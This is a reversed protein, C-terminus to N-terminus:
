TAPPAFMHAVSTRTTRAGMPHEGRQLWERVKVKAAFSRGRVCPKCRSHQIPGVGSRFHDSKSRIHLTECASKPPREHGSKQADKVRSRASVMEPQCWKQSVRRRASGVEPKLLQWCLQRMTSPRALQQPPPKVMGCCTGNRNPCRCM